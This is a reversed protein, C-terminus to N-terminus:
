AARKDMTTTTTTGGWRFKNVRAYEVIERSLLKGFYLGM